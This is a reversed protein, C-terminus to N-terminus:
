KDNYNWFTLIMVQRTLGSDQSSQNNGLKAIAASVRLDSSRVDGVVKRRKGPRSVTGSTADVCYFDGVDTDAHNM